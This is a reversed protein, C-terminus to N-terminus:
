RKRYVDKRHRVTEAFIRNGEIAYLIRYKGVRLSFEGALAGSLRKGQLPSRAIEDLATRVREQVAAPLKELRHIFRRTLFLDM